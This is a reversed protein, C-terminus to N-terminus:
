VFDVMINEQNLFFNSNKNNFYLVPIIRSLMRTALTGHHEQAGIDVWSYV